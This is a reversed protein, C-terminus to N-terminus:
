VERNTPLTLHTYSVPSHYLAVKEKGEYALGFAMCVWQMLEGFAKHTNSILGVTTKEDFQNLLHRILTTKGSGIEGTVIVIPAESVLGYELMALAM